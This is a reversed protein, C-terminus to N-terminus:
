AFSKYVEDKAFVQKALNYGQEAIKYALEQDNEMKRYNEELDSADAKVPVYHVWPIFLDDWYEVDQRYIKFVM